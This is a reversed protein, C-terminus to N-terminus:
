AVDSQASPGRSNWKERLTPSCHSLLIERVIVPNMKRKIMLIGELIMERSAIQKQTRFLLNDAVPLIILNALIVGYLTAALAVSMAPGVQAEAGEKGLTALLAIMGMVTGILGTAPPYKGLNKFMKADSNEREKQVEIRRQLIQEMEEESFGETLIGIADRLFPDRVKPLVEKARGMDIRVKEALEVMTAILDLKDDHHKRGIVRIMKFFQKIYEFPVAIIAIITTGIVVIFFAHPDIFQLPRDPNTWIAAVILFIVSLFYGFGALSFRSLM